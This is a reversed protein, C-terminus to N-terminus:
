VVSKRDETRQRAARVSRGLLSKRGVFQIEPSDNEPVHGSLRVFRPAVGEFLNPDTIQGKTRLWLNLLYQATDDVCGRDVLTCSQDIVTCTM